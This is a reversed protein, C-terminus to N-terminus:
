KESELWEAAVGLMKVTSRLVATEGAPYEGSVVSEIVGQAARVRALAETTAKSRQDTSM